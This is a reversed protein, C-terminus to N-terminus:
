AIGGLEEARKDFRSMIENYTKETIDPMENLGTANNWAIGAQSFGEEVAARMTALKDPDGGAIADALDFIRSAVADVGWDGDDAVAKAADEPNTAVEPLGFRSADIQVGDFNLIGVGDDLWGQLKDNNDQLAQIMMNLMTQQSVAIDNQLARVQDSTLGKTQQAEKAEDSIEVSYAEGVDTSKTQQDEQNASADAKKTNNANSIASYANIGSQVNIASVDM